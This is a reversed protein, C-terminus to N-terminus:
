RFMIKFNQTLLTPSTFNMSVRSPNYDNWNTFLGDLYTKITIWQLDAHAPFIEQVPQVPVKKHHRFPKLISQKTPM